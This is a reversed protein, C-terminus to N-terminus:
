WDLASKFYEFNVPGFAGTQAELQAIFSLDATGQDLCNCLCLHNKLHAAVRRIAYGEASGVTMMFPWDSSQALLLERVAQELLRRQHTQPSEFYSALRTMRDQAWNLHPYIWATKENLWTSLYGGKGWSSLSPQAIQHQPYLRLYDTPTSLVLVDRYLMAKRVFRDLFMPGEFWWHGFLEADFPVVLIPPNRAMPAAIIQRLRTELFDQAHVNVAQMAAAVDYPKKSATRGSIAHYKIGTYARITQGPIYPQVYEYDLDFGIDRYFDRYRPDGPYGIQRSWVQQASAFDRGFVAIGGPTIIPAYVGYLPKPVSNLAGHTDLIVWRICAKRLVPEIEPAYACEPLWFGVPDVGFNERYIDRGIMVQARLSPPHKVLLPLIAHTAATTIIEVLGADRLRKLEQVLDRRCENFLSYLMEFRNRYFKALKNYGPEFWTRRIENEALEILGTLYREYRAQLVPDRLMACLTPSISITLRASIGDKLWGRMVQVLPLYCETIAEFLWREEYCNEYEPHRIFPLHAHLVIAIYGRM